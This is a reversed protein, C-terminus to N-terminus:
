FPRFLLSPPLKKFNQNSPKLNRNAIKTQKILFHLLPVVRRLRVPAGQLLPTPSIPVPGFELVSCFLRVVYGPM